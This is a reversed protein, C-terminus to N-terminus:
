ESLFESWEMLESRIGDINAMQRLRFQFVMLKSSPMYPSLEGLLEEAEAAEKVRHEFTQYAEWRDKPQLQPANEVDSTDLGMREWKRIRMSFSHENLNEKPIETLPHIFKVYENAQKEIPEISSLGEGDDIQIPDTHEIHTSDYNLWTAERQVKKLESNSFAPELIPLLVIWQTGVLSDRIARIMNLVPDFGHKHSLYELGDLALIGGLEQQIIQEFLWNLYELSPKAYGEGVSETLWHHEFEPKSAFQQWRNLPLRSIVVLRFGDSQFRYTQSKLVELMNDASLSYVSGKAVISESLGSVKRKM